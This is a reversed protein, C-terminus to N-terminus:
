RVGLCVSSTLPLQRLQYQLLHSMLYLLLIMQLYASCLTKTRTKSNLMEFDLTSTFAPTHATFHSGNYIRNLASQNSPHQLATFEVHVSTTVAVNTFLVVHKSPITSM